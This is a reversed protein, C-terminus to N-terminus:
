KFNSFRERECRKRSAGAGGKMALFLKTEAYPERGSRDKRDVACQIEEKDAEVAGPYGRLVDSGFPLESCM